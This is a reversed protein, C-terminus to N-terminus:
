IRKKVSDKFRVLKDNPYWEVWKRLNVPSTFALGSGCYNMPGLWISETVFPRLTEVLQRPDPELCPEISVSTKFGDTFAYKLSDFREQFTPAGPEWEALKADDNSTITFRFQIQPKYRAFTDCINKIVALHPKTTVLVDNGAELLKRLVTMCADFYPEDPVIDHSTPFMVRGTKKRYGKDVDHQRVAMVKWTAETKRKFRIAMKKAYCYKCDHACGDILNVNHDAWEKTGSTIKKGRAEHMATASAM